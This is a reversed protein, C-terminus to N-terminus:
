ISNQKMKKTATWSLKSKGAIRCFSSSSKYRARSEVMWTNIHHFCESLHHRNNSRTLTQLPMEM